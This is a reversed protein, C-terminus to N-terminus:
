KKPILELVINLKKYKKKAEELSKATGLKKWRVFYEMEDKFNKGAEVYIPSLVNYM